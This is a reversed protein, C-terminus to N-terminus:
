KKSFANKTDNVMSMLTEPLSKANQVNSLLSQITEQNNEYLSQVQEVKSMVLNELEGRNQAYYSVTDKANKVATVTQERTNKDFMSIIAGAVAGIAVFPLLKSKGM